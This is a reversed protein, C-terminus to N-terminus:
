WRKRKIYPISPARPKMVSLPFSNSSISSVVENLFVHDIMGLFTFWLVRSIQLPFSVGKSPVRLLNSGVSQMGNLFLFLCRRLLTCCVLTLNMAMSRKIGAGM